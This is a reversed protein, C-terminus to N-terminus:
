PLPIPLPIPGTDVFGAFDYLMRAYAMRHENAFGKGIDGVDTILYFVQSGKPCECVDNLAGPVASRVDTLAPFLLQFHMRGVPIAASTGQTPFNIRRGTALNCEVKLDWATYVSVASDWNHWVVCDLPFVPLRFPLAM